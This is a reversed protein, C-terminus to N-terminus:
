IRLTCPFMVLRELTTTIVGSSCVLVLTRCAVHCQVTEVHCPATALPICIKGEKGEWWFNGGVLFKQFNGMLDILSCLYIDVCYIQGLSQGLKICVYILHNQLVDHRNWLISVCLSSPPNPSKTMYSSMCLAFSVFFHLNKIAAGGVAAWPGGVFFFLLRMLNKLGVEHM